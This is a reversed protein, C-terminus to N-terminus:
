ETISEMLFHSQNWLSESALANTENKPTLIRSLHHSRSTMRLILSQNWWKSNFGQTRLTGTGKREGYILNRYNIPRCFYGFAPVIPSRQWNKPARARFRLKTWKTHAKIRTNLSKATNAVQIM